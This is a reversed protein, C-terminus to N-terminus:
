PVCLSTTGRAKQLSTDFPQSSHLPENALPQSAFRNDCQVHEENPVIKWGILILETCFTLLKQLLLFTNRACDIIHCKTRWGTYRPIHKCYLTIFSSICFPESNNHSLSVWLLLPFFKSLIVFCDVVLTVFSKVQVRSLLSYSLSQTQLWLSMIWLLCIFLHLHSNSNGLNTKGKRLQMQAFLVFFQLIKGNEGLLDEQTVRSSCVLFTQRM